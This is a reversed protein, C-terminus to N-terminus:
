ITEIKHLDSSTLISISKQTIAVSPDGVNLRNGSKDNHEITVNEVYDIYERTEIFRIILSIHLTGGFKLQSVDGGIWPSLFANLEAVLQDRYFYPDKCPIVKIKCTVTITEYEPPRVLVKAAGCMLPRMKVNCDTGDDVGRLYNAIRDHGGRSLLPQFKNGSQINTVYPLPVVIVHGPVNEKYNYEKGTATDLEYKAHNVCKVMSVNPFNELVIREYDWMSIARHKHRLRESIRTYYENGAEVM